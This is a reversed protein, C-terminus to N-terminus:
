QIKESTQVSKLADHKLKTPFSLKKPNFTLTLPKIKNSNMM